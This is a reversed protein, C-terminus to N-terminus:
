IIGYSQGCDGCIGKGEERNETIGLNTVDERASGISRELGSCQRQRARRVDSYIDSVVIAIWTSLLKGDFTGDLTVEHM